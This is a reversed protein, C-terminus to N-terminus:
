NENRNSEEFCRKLQGLTNKVGFLVYYKIHFFILALKLTREEISKDFFINCNDVHPKGDLVTLFFLLAAFM